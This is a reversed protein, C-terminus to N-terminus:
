RIFTNKYHWNLNEFSPYFIEKSPLLLQKGVFQKISYPSDNEKIATSVVLQYNDNIAILGRDFARHLNPSLSIGNPITDNQSVSFPVIHCADVLQANTTSEIRMGSVACHYNYIKPIEKKFVGSRVYVEEEFSEKSLTNKLEEIRLKYEFANDAVLQNEIINFLDYSKNQLENKTESFYKELLNEKLVACSIPDVMLLFLEKDIEAFAISEKLSNFSKVSNSSSIPLIMGTKTVLKWFPESKMHFFPLAFNAHNKSIVLKSWNNKFELVLEPTIEIRNNNIERKSVLEIISILLIPKHPAGGNKSDRRLKSFYHIYKSLM